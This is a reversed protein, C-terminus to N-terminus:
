PFRMSHMQGLNDLDDLIKDSGVCSHESAVPKISASNGLDNWILPPIYLQKSMRRERGTTDAVLQLNRIYDLTHPDLSDM